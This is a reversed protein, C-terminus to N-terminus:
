WVTRRAPGPMEPPIMVQGAPAIPTASTVNTQGSVALPAGWAALWANLVDFTQASQPFILFRIKVANPDKKMAGSVFQTSLYVSNAEEDSPDAIGNDSFVTAPVIATGGAIQRGRTDLQEISV